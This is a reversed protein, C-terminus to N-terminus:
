GMRRVGSTHMGEIRADLFWLPAFSQLSGISEVDVSIAIEDPLVLQAVLLCIDAASEAGATGHLLAIAIGTFVNLGCERLDPVWRFSIVDDILSAREKERVNARIRFGLALALWRPDIFVPRDARAFASRAIHIIAARSLMLRTAFPALLWAAMADRNTHM